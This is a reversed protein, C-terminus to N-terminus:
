SKTVTQQTELRDVWLLTGPMQPSRQRPAGKFRYGDGQAAEVLFGEIKVLNGARLQKLQKELDADAAILHLNVTSAEVDADAFAPDYSKALLRRESQAVDVNKLMVSDSMRGWGLAADLLVFQSERDRGYREISLVRATSKLRALPKFVYGNREFIRDVDALSAVQPADPALIGPPQPVPRHTEYFWVGLVLMGILIIQRTVPKM